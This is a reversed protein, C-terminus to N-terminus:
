HWYRVSTWITRSFSATTPWPGRPLKRTLPELTALVRGTFPTTALAFAAVWLPSLNMDILLKM